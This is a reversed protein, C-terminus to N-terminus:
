EACLKKYLKVYGDTMSEVSFGADIHEHLQGRDYKQSLVYPMDLKEIDNFLVAGVPKGLDEHAPIDSLVPFLGCAVAECVAMSMGESKSYSIYYDACQLYDSVNAVQGTFIINSCRKALAKCSELRTGGGLVLLCIHKNEDQRSFFSVLEECRKEREVRGSTVFVKADDSILLRERLTKRTVANAVCFRNTDIGNNVFTVHSLYQHYLQAGSESVAVNMDFKRLAHFYRALMYRGLVPGFANLFDETARDHLTTMKKVKELGACVIAPHYGHCHVIDIAYKDVIRQVQKTVFCSGVECSLYTKELSMVKVGLRAFDDVRSNGPEKRLSLVALHINKEETLRACLNYVVEVLGGRRLHAVVMLIKMAM